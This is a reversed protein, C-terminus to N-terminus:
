PQVTWQDAQPGAHLTLNGSVSDYVYDVGAVAAVGNLLVLAPSAGMDNLVLTDATGDSSGTRIQLPAGAAFPILGYPIRVRELNSTARVEISNTAPDLAWDFDTFAGSQEQDVGYWWYQGDVDVRLEGAKPLETLQRQSLWDLAAAQDLTDWTHAYPLASYDSPDFEYAVDGLLTNVYQVLGFAQAKLDTNPDDKAIFTKNPIHQLNTGLHRGPLVDKTFYDTRVASARDYEFPVQTPTGGTWFEHIWQTGLASMWNAVKDQTGTHLFIGAFIPRWPDLHRAAYTAADGAGMSFGIAYYRSADIWGPFVDRVCRLVIEINQQSELSSFSKKSAGLPAVCFWGRARCEEILDTDDYADFHNQAFPHFVTLLPRPGLHVSDIPIYILFKEQFGSPMNPFVVEFLSGTSYYEVPNLQFPESPSSMTGIQHTGGTQAVATGGSTCWATILVVLAVVTGVAEALSARVGGLASCSLSVNGKM